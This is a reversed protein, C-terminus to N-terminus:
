GIAAAADLSAAPELALAAPEAALALAQVPVARRPAQSFPNVAPAPPEIERL